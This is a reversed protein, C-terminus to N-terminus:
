AKQGWSSLNEQQVLVIGLCKASQHTGSWMRWASCSSFHSVALTDDHQHPALSLPRFGLCSHPSSVLRWSLLWSDLAAQHTSHTVSTDGRNDGSLHWKIIVNVANVAVTQDKVTFCRGTSSSCVNRIVNSPCTFRWRGGDLELYFQRGAKARFFFRFSHAVSAPFQNWDHWETKNPESHAASQRSLSCWDVNCVHRWMQQRCSFEVSHLCLLAEVNM